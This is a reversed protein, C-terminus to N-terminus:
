RTAAEPTSLGTHVPGSSTGFDEERLASLLEAILRDIDAAKLSARIVRLEEDVIVIQAPRIGERPRIHVSQEILM